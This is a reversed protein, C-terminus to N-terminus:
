GTKPLNLRKTLFFPIILIAEAITLWIRSAISIIVAIHAPLVMKMFYLLVGERVGIGAPAFPVVLGSISSIGLVMSIFPIQFPSIEYFSLILFYFAIGGFLGLNLANLLILLLIKGHTEKIEVKERGARKLFFNFGKEVVKPHSFILLFVIGALYFGEKISGKLGYFPALGALLLFAGGGQALTELLFLSLVESVRTGKHSYLYARGLPLMVKGPIYKGIMSYFWAGIAEGISVERITEKSILFWFISLFFYYLFLFPYSAIIFKTKVSFNFNKLELWSEVIQLSIYYFALGLILTQATRYLLKRNREKLSM